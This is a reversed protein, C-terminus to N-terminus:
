KWGRKLLHPFHCPLSVRRFLDDSKQPFRLNPQALPPRDARDASPDADRLLAIVSPPTLVAPQLEILGLPELIEFTLVVAQLLGNGFQREVLQDQLLRERSFVSGKGSAPTHR